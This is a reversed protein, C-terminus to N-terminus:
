TIWRRADMNRNRAWSIGAYQQRSDQNIYRAFGSWTSQSTATSPENGGGGSPAVYHGLAQEVRPLEYAVPSGRQPYTIYGHGCDRGPDAWMTCWAAFNSGNGSIQIAADANIGPQYWNNWRLNWHGIWLSNIQWLGYDSSPSIADANGGSEAFAVAVAMVMHARSGGAFLWINAVQSPSLWDAM